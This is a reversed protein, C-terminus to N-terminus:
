TQLTPFAAAHLLTHLYVHSFACGALVYRPLFPEASQLLIPLSVLFHLWACLINNLFLLPISPLRARLLHHWADVVLVGGMGVAIGTRGGTREHVCTWGTGTRDMSDDVGGM